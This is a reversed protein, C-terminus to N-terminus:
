DTKRILLGENPRLSLQPTNALAPSDDMRTTLLIEAGHQFAEPLTITKPENSFNLVILMAGAKATEGRTYQLIDDEASLVTCAGDILVKHTRRLDILTKVMCLMSDPKKQSEAVNLQAADAGVPLWPETGAPSFGANPGSDWRMPTRVPDRGLGLGPSLLEWPDQVKDAPIPVSEMGLEDGYYITPTGRVTLLFLYGNRAQDKGARTAFRPQDHNSLVWNPWGHAPVTAEFESVLAGVNKAQWPSFILRFNFPLHFEPKEATGYHKALEPLTLNMEGITVKDEFEDATERIWRNFLHIDATNKTNRETVRFSPDMGPKWDPNVPNDAFDRHKMVRYSVDVRFGDVGRRFWFRLIDTMASKVEPNRWNLDPQEELFTHLYYQGTQEDWKWASKGDFRSLWNNPPGGGPAPDKWYYWDRKPNDRSSKSELFWPHENSTHNPVFDLIVKLRREHAHAILADMDAISGFIPDIDCHDTVDYGFDAMPSPYVPSIWIADAGLWKLYDLRKRIGKLDGIGDGNADMFSRPYIHYIVAKKWWDSM